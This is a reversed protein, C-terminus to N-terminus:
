NPQQGSAGGGKDTNGPGGGGGGSRKQCVGAGMMNIQQESGERVADPNPKGTHHLPYMMQSQKTESKDMM